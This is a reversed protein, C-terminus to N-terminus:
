SSRVLVDEPSSAVSRSADRRGNAMADDQMKEGGKGM